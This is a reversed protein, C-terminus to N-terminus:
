CKWRTGCNVCSVYVTMPEDASRTQLEFHKTKWSKCKRCQFAGQIESELEKKVLERELEKQKQKHCMQDWPGGPWLENSKLRAVERTKIAGNKIREVLGSQPKKMNFIISCYKRKYREKFINNEWSPIEGELKTQEISCNYISKEINTAVPLEFFDHFKSVVFQRMTTMKKSLYRYHNLHTQIM